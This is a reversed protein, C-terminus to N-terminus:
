VKAELTEASFKISVPQYINFEDASQKNVKESIYNMQEALCIRRKFGASGWLLTMTKDRLRFQRRLPLGDELAVSMEESRLKSWLASNDRSSQPSSM